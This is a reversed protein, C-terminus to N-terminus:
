AIKYAKNSSRISRRSMLVVKGKKRADFIYDESGVPANEEYFIPLRSSSVTQWPGDEPRLHRLFGHFVYLVDM